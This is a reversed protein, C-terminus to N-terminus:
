SRYDANIKIYEKTLDCTWVTAHEKGSGINIDIEINKSKMKKAVVKENYNNILAGKYTIHAKNISISISEQRISEGSKGIAMIIRGWNPDEGAIATKVLSSNAVSLAIEKAIKYSKASNVNITIFKSAGEGDCVIQQALGQLVKDLSKRFLKLRKDAISKIPKNLSKINSSFLLCTDSTSTDGDVTISNFSKEVAEKLVINLINSSLP